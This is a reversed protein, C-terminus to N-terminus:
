NLKSLTSATFVANRWTVLGQGSPLEAYLVRVTTSGHAAQLVIGLTDRGQDMPGHVIDGAAPVMSGDSYMLSM